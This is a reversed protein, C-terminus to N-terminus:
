EPDEPYTYNKCGDESLQPLEGTVFVLRCYGEPNFVCYEADCEPCLGQAQAEKHANEIIPNKAM